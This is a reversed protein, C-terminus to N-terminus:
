LNRLEGGCLCCFIGGTTSYTGKDHPCEPNLFTITYYDPKGCYPCFGGSQEDYSQNHKLCYGM